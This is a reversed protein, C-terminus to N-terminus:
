MPAPVPPYWRHLEAFSQSESDKLWPLGPAAGGSALGEELKLVERVTLLPVNIRLPVDGARRTQDLAPFDALALKPEHGEDIIVGGWTQMRQTDRYHVDLLQEIRRAPGRAAIGEYLESGLIRRQAVAYDWGDLHREETIDLPIRESGVRETLVRLRSGDEPTTANITVLIMSGPRLHEGLLRIDQLEQRRLGKCYDLWVILPDDLPITQLVDNSAGGLVVIDPFPRNFEFRSLTSSSEISTMYDIGLQRHVLDFDVFEYGGFGVYRYHKLPHFVALRRMVDVAMLRLIHKAPRFQWGAM